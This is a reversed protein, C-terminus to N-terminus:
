SRYANPSPTCVSNKLTIRWRETTEPTAIAKAVGFFVTISYVRSL